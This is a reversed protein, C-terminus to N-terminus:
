AAGGRGAGDQQQAEKALDLAERWRVLGIHADEAAEPDLHGAVHDLVRDAEARLDTLMQRGARTLRHDVRRRDEAAREREVLGDRILGAIVNTTTPSAVGAARAIDSTSTYDRDILSLVWFRAMTSGASTIAHEVTRHLALVAIAGVDTRESGSTSVSATTAM